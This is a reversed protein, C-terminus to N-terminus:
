AGAEAAEANAGRVFAALLAVVPPPTEDDRAPPAVDRLLRRTAEYRLRETLTRQSEAAAREADAADLLAAAQEPRGTAVHLEAAAEAVIHALEVDSAGLALTAARTLHANAAPPDGDDLSALALSIRAHAEAYANGAELSRTLGEAFIPLARARDGLGFSCRGLSVLTLAEDGRAGTERFVALATSFEEAAEALDGRAYAAAGLATRAFAELYTDGAAAFHTRADRALAAAAGADGAMRAANAAYLMAKAATTAEGAERLAAIAEAFAAHARAFGLQNRALLARLYLTEARLAGDVEADRLAADYWGLAEVVHGREFTYRSLANLARVGLRVERRGGIAATLAARIDDYERDLELFREFARAGRLADNQAALPELVTAVYRREAAELEGAEVLKRHMFDRTSRLSEYAAGAPDVRLLSREALRALRLAIAGPEGRYYAAVRDARWAGRVLGLARFLARENEALLDYSWAYARELTAHHDIAGVRAPLVAFRDAIVARLGETGFSGASQAALELALPLGDLERCVDAVALLRDRSRPIPTGAAAARDLFFAVADSALLTRADVFTEAPLAFPEVGQVREGEFRLPLRSSILVASEPSVRLLDCAVRALASAHRECNDLVLLLARNRLADRLAAANPAAASLADALAARLSTEGDHLAVDVYRTGGAFAVPPDNAIRLAIRSKGAGPPGTLTLTRFAGLTERGRAVDGHRAFFPTLTQPLAAYTAPTGADLSAALAATGASPSLGLEDRLRRAAGGFLRRARAGEGRAALAKMGLMLADERSPDLEVIREALRVIREADGDGASRELAASLTDVATAVLTSRAGALWEDDIGPFVDEVRTVLAEESAAGSAIVDVYHAVDICTRVATSLAVSEAGRLIADPEGVREFFRSLEHLQRRLRSAADGEGADPWLALALTKRDVARSRLALHALLRRFRMPLLATPDLGDVEVRFTGFGEIRVM